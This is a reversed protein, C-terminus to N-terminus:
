GATSHKVNSIWQRISESKINSLENLLQIRSEEDLKLAICYLITKVDNIESAIESTKGTKSDFRVTNEKVKLM